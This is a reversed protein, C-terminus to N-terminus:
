GELVICPNRMHIMKGTHEDVITDVRRAVRATRGCFRGMEADFGMGRNLLDKNLTPEIEAKSKIRVVDGPQLNTTATPTNAATGRLYGWHRGGRLRLRAPLRRSAGQARNYLGVFLARLSWLPTVNRNRVDAVFQGFERIPLGDPAARLLETAQCRYRPSGDEGPARQSNAVLLPLLRAGDPAQAPVSAPSPSSAPADVKRLWAHKWYMLCAAQCGGHGGGDCRAGTLHVANDMRRMGSRTLTDCAKSAVKYVTLRRGCYQFMEPMFPLSELEGREDLTALIEDASRVEVVDGSRLDLQVSASRDATRM